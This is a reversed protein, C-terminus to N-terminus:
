HIGAASRLIGAWYPSLLVKLALDALWLSAGLALAGREERWWRGAGPRDLLIRALSVGLVVFAAVRFLSWPHWGLIAAVLPRDALLVVQGVYYSMYGLLWAGLVLAGAGATAAALFVFAALHSLHEPVFRAPDSEKGVGTLLYPRMEEWYAPGHPVVEAARAPFTAVLTIQTGSLVAAWLLLFLVVVARPGRRAAVLWAFACAGAALPGTWGAGALFPLAAAVPASALLVLGGLPLRRAVRAGPGDPM